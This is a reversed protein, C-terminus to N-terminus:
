LTLHEPHRYVLHRGGSPTDYGFTEPIDLWAQDLSEWGDKGNKVDVDLVILNAGGVWVGVEASPNEGWWRSIQAPDTTADLHGHPTLPTKSNDAGVRVPFVALGREAM